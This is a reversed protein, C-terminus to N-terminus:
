KFKRGKKLSEIHEEMRRIEKNMKTSMLKIRKNRILKTRKNIETGNLDKEPSKDHETM